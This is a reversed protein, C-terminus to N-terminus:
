KDELLDPNEYINGIVEYNILIEDEINSDYLLYINGNRYSKVFSGNKYSVISKYKNNCVIIDGEYVEIGDKDKLGTYQMLMVEDLFSNFAYKENEIRIFNEAFQINLIDENYFMTNEQSDWARFKIERSM